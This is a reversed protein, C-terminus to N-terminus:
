ARWRWHEPMGLLGIVCSGATVCYPWAPAGTIAGFGAVRVMAHVRGNRRISVM